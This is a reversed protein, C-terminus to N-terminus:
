NNCVRATVETGRLRRRMPITARPEGERDGRHRLATAAARRGGVM